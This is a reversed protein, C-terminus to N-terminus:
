LQQGVRRYIGVLREIWRDRSLEGAAMARGHTVMAEARAPDDLVAQIAAGLAEPDGPRCVIGRGDELFTAIGGLASGVVPTGAAWAETVVLPAVDPWLSPVALVGASAMQDRVTEPALEGTFVVEAGLDRALAELGSRAGGDGVVRLPVGTGACARVLVDVGKPPTLRGVFLAHRGRTAPAQSRVDTLTVPNPLAHIRSPDVGAREAARRQLPNLVTVVDPVRRWLRHVNTGVAEVTLALGAAVSSSRCRLVPPAWVFGLRKELCVTCPTRTRDSFLIANPCAVKYDHLSLIV